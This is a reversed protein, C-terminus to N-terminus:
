RAACSEILRSAECDSRETFIINGADRTPRAPEVKASFVTSISDCALEGDDTNTSSTLDAAACVTQAFNAYAPSDCLLAGGIQIAGLSPLFERLPLRAGLVLDSVLFTAPVGADATAREIRAVVVSGSIRTSVEPGVPFPARAPSRAVLVNNTVYGTVVFEPELSTGPLLGDAPLLWRDCGDGTARYAAVRGGDPLRPRSTPSQPKRGRSQGDCGEDSFIGVSRTLGVTVSKDNAEGNYGAVYIMLASLGASANSDLSSTTDIGGDIALSGFQNEGGCSDLDCGGEPNGLPVCARRNPEFSSPEACSRLDDVNL